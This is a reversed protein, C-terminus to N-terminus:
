EKKTIAQNLNYIVYAYEVSQGIFIRYFSNQLISKFVLVDKIGGFYNNKKIIEAEGNLDIISPYEEQLMNVIDRASTYAYIVKQNGRCFHTLYIIYTNCINRSLKANEGNIRKAIQEIIFGNATQDDYIYINKTLNTHSRNYFIAKNLEEIELASPVFVSKIFLHKKARSKPHYHTFDEYLRQKINEVETRDLGNCDVYIVHDSPDNQLSDIVADRVSMRDVTAFLNLSGYRDITKLNQRIGGVICYAMSLIELLITIGFILNKILSDNVNDLLKAIITGIVVFALLSVQLLTRFNNHKM